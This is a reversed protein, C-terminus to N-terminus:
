KVSLSPLPSLSLTSYLPYTPILLIMLKCSLLYVSFSCCYYSTPSFYLGQKEMAASVTSESEPSCVITDKKIESFYTNLTLSLLLGALERCLAPPCPFFPATVSEGRPATAAPTSSCEGFAASINQLALASCLVWRKMQTKMIHKPMGRKQEKKPLPLFTPCTNCLVCIYLIQTRGFIVLPENEFLHERSLKQSNM